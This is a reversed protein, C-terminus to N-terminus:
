LCRGLIAIACGSCAASSDLWRRSSWCRGNPMTCTVATVILFAFHPWSNRFTPVIPAAPPGAYSVKPANGARPRARTPMPVLRRNRSMHGARRGSLYLDSGSGYRVTFRSEDYLSRMEAWEIAAQKRAFAAVIRHDRRVIFPLNDVVDDVLMLATGPQKKLRNFAM